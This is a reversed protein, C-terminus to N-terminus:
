RETGSKKKRNSWRYTKLWVKVRSLCLARSVITQCTTDGDGAAIGAVNAAGDLRGFVSITDAIWKDVQDPNSVDVRTCEIQAGSAEGPIILM